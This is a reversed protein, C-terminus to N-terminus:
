NCDMRIELVPPNDRELIPYDRRNALSATFFNKITSDSEDDLKYFIGQFSALAKGHGPPCGDWSILAAIWKGKLIFM